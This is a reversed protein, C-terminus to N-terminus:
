HQVKNPFVPREDVAREVFPPVLLCAFDHMEQSFSSKIEAPM